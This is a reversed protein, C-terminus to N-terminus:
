NPEIFVLEFSLHQFFYHCSEKNYKSIQGRIGVISFCANWFLLFWLLGVFRMLQKKIISHKSYSGWIKCSEKFCKKAGFHQLFRRHPILFQAKILCPQGENYSSGQWSTTHLISRHSALLHCAALLEFEWNCSFM